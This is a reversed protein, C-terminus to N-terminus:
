KKEPEIRWISEKDYYNCFATNMWYLKEEDEKSAIDYCGEYLSPMETFSMFEVNKISDDELIEIRADLEQKFQGIVNMDKMAKAVTLGDPDWACIGIVLFYILLINMKFDKLNQHRVLAETIDKLLYGYKNEIWGLFYVINIVLVIILFWYQFNLQRAPPMQGEAYSVSAYTSAFFCFGTLFILLPCRYNYEKKRIANYIINAALVAILVVPLKLWTLVHRLAYVFCAAIAIVPNRQEYFEARIFNGPAFVNFGFCILLLCFLFLVQGKVVKKYKKQVFLDLLLVIQSLLLLLITSYNGGGLIIAMISLILISGWQINEKNQYVLKCIKAFFVLGASFLVTNYFSGNYWFFASYPSPIYQINLNWLLFYVIYFDLAKIGLIDRLFVKLFYYLGRSNFGLLIITHLFGYQSGFTFPELTTFFPNTYTGGWTFYVDAANKAAETIAVVIIEFFGMDAKLAHRLGLANNLDNGNPLSPIGCIILLVTTVVTFMALLVVVLIKWYERIKLKACLLESLRILQEM